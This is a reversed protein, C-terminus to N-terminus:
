RVLLLQGRILPHGSAPALVYPYADIPLPQGNYTGDFPHTYGESTFYVAEGWRNYITLHAEPYAEIGYLNWTDNVGDNNPTFADPIWIRQYVHVQTSAFGQCGAENTVTLTYQIDNDVSVARSEAQDTATLFTTPQWLFSVPFGTLVPELRIDGGKYVTIEAPLYITPVPAVAVQQKAVGSRCQNTTDRVTYTLEHVGMGALHPDFTTGIIGKGAFFGGEPKGHLEVPPHDTGCLTPISDLKVSINSLASVLFSPSTAQCGATDTGTVTVNGPAKVFFLSQIAYTVPFGNLNWVYNIAGTARLLLSDGPCLATTARAPTILVNPDPRQTVQITDTHLECGQNIDNLVAFYRGPQDVKISDSTLSRLESGDRFWRYQYGSGLQATLQVSGGKRCLATSGDIGLKILTNADNIRVKRSSVRQSCGSASSITVGYDGSETITLSSSTAGSISINNQSWQYNWDANFTTQLVVRKGTCVTATTATVPQNQISITPTPLNTAPCDIVLMQLDRRVEGIKVGSRFEEVRVSFVYLGQQSATVSLIGTHEDISLPPSGQIAVKASFGNKWNVEPYPAPKIVPTNTNVIFTGALPSVLSYHLEDGDTDHAIAAFTFPKSVCIYEGTLPIFIPSSNLFLQGSRSLAPFELYFLFPTSQPNILNAINANRCCNQQIMYYGQPDTYENPDLQITAEYEVRSIRLNNISACTPNAFIVPPRNTLTTNLLTFEAMKKGDAKRFIVANSSPQPLNATQAENYYYTMTVLFYGPKNDVLMMNLQGGVIHTAFSLKPLFILFFLGVLKQIFLWFSYLKSEQTICQYIAGDKLTDM